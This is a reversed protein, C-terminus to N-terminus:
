KLKAQLFQLAMSNAEITEEPQYAEPNSPNAFAHKVGEFIKYEFDKGASKALQDFNQVVEANIWGDESAFIGLVPAELPALEAASQVPMGYYIVCAEAQEGAAIAAKLSWGGGFCWGITGIQADPGAKTLAGQIIAKARAPDVSQMYSGAQDPNDAVKGDYIDLAMVTTNELSAALREAEQKINENLGWWEHIVFLFKNEPNATAEVVYAAGESGDPTAFTTMKGQAEFDLGEPNPHAAVFAADTVFQAMGDIQETQTSDTTVESNAESSNGAPECASVILILSSLYLLQKMTNRNDTSM